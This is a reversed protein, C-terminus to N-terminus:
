PDPRASIASLRRMEEGFVRGIGEDASGLPVAHSTSVMCVGEGDYRDVGLRNSVFAQEVRVVWDVQPDGDLVFFMECRKQQHTSAGLSRCTEDRAMEDHLATAHPAYRVYDSRPANVTTAAPNFGGTFILSFGLTFFAGTGKLFNEGTLYTSGAVKPPLKEDTAYALSQWDVPAAAASGEHASEFRLRVGYGDVPIANSQLRVRVFRARREIVPLAELPVVRALEDGRVTRLHLHLNADESLADAVVDPEEEDVGACVAERYHKHEVLQGLTPACGVALSGLLMALGRM